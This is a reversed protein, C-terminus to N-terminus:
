PLLIPPTPGEQQFSSGQGDPGVLQLTARYFRRDMLGSAPDFLTVTGEPNAATAVPTWTRFDTTAEVLCSV